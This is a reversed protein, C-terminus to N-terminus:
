SPDIQMRKARMGRLEALGARDELRTFMEQAAAAAVDHRSDGLRRRIDALLLRNWGIARQWGPSDPRVAPHELLEAAAPLDGLLVHVAALNWAALGIGAVDGGRRMGALARQGLLLARESRGDVADALAQGDLALAVGRLDGLTRRLAEAAEFCSRSADCDGVWRLAHGRQAVTLAQGYRDGLSRFASAAADLLQLSGDLDGGLRAHMARTLLLHATAQARGVRRALWMTEEGIVYTWGARREMVFALSMTILFPDASEPVAALAAGADALRRGANELEGRSLALIAAVHLTSTLVSPVGAAEVLTQAQLADTRPWDGSMFALVTQQHHAAALQARDGGDAAIAVLEAGIGDLPGAQGLRTSLVALGYLAAARLASRDPHADLARRLWRTGEEIMGRSMWFRWTSTALRLAQEPDDALAAALAVRLNDHEDAFWRPPEGVIPRAKDPDLRAAQDAYYDRHWRRCEEREAADLRAAAYQRIVELLQYRGGAARLHAIVLSKDILRSLIGVPDPGVGAGLQEVAELDFGGAFVSLRRFLARETDTLLAHSWDITAALTHQRDLGGPPGYSLLSLANDLRAALEAVSLHALRAAALELALPIGDLRRCILAVPASTTADLAFGPRAAAAREVFLQVSELQALGVPDAHRGPPPLQLSPVRWTLEGRVRLPERGTALVTVGPCGALLAETLAAAAAVLHECNDLVVLVRQASLRDVVAAVGSGGGPLRLGIAAAVAAVVQEGARLDALEVFRVGDPHRRDEARRRGLEIALRTKGAGGPGTLTVLRTRSLAADLEALERLRGVFSTVAAPLNHRSEDGDIGPGALRQRLDRTEQDPEAGLERDLAAHLRNYALLADARRGAALLAEMLTRHLPEDLPRDAVLPELLAAAEEAAGRAILAGALRGVVGVRTEHMRDRASGAWEAYGDEPLLEGTWAELAARLGAVDCAGAAAALFEEADVTLGGAPCLTVVDDRLEVTSAPAGAEALARRAAYLAQHVNNASAEPTRDPWLTEALVDRHLRHGPALALLKVLTKGKRLRWSDPVAVGGVWMAFGGLLRIRVAPVTVDFTM